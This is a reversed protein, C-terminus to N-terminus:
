FQNYIFLINIIIGEQWHTLWGPYYETNMLPGNPQFKRLTKWYSDITKSDGAGFDLSIFVDPIKGCNIMGPGDNSFM